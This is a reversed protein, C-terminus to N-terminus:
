RARLRVRGRRAPRLLAGCRRAGCRRRVHTGLPSRRRPARARRPRRAPLRPPGAADAGTREGAHARCRSRCLSRTGRGPRGHGRHARAQRARRRPHWRPLPRAAPCHTGRGSESRSLFQRSFARRRPPVLGRRQRSARRRRRRLAAGRPGPSRAAVRGTGRAHAARQRRALWEPCQGRPVGATRAVLMAAAARTGALRYHALAFGADLQVAQEFAAM